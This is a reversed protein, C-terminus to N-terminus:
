QEGLTAQMRQDVHGSLYLAFRAVKKVARVSLTAGTIGDIGNDLETSQPLLSAGIFQKTFFPHRVEGGRSERFELISVREIKGKSIVIGVTIPRTKGIEDMIWATTNEVQWYRVRFGAFDHQFIDRARSKDNDDLWISGPEPEAGTGFSQEIFQAPTLYVGKGFAINVGLLCWCILWGALVKSVARYTM